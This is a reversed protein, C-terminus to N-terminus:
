LKIIKELKKKSDGRWIKLFFRRCGNNTLTYVIPNYIASTKAFLAPLSTSLPTIYDEINNGFQALLVMIAYPAWSLCFLVVCLVVSKIVKIERKILYNKSSLNRDFVVTEPQIREISNLSWKSNFKKLFNAKSEHM